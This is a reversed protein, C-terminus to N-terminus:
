SAQGHSADENLEKKIHGIMVGLNTDADSGILWNGLAVLNRWEIL